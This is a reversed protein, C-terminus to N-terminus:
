ISFVEQLKKSDIEYLKEYLKPIIDKWNYITYVDNNIILSKISKGTVNLKKDTIDYIDPTFEESSEMSTYEVERPYPGSILEIAKKSLNENRDKINIETWEDYKSVEQTLIFQCEKLINKKFSWMKNSNSSNYSASLMALNGVCNLYTNHIIM